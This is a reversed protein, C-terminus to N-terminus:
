TYNEQFSLVGNVLQIVSCVCSLVYEHVCVCVQEKLFGIANEISATSPPEIFPFRIDCNIDFIM